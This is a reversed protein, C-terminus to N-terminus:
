QLYELAKGTLLFEEHEELAAHFVVAEADVVREELKLGLEVALEEGLGLASEGCEVLDGAVGAEDFNAALAGAGEGFPDAM